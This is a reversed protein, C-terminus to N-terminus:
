FYLVLLSQYYRKVIASFISGADILGASQLTVTLATSQVLAFIVTGYRTYQTIKTVDLKDM